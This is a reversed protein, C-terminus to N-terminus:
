GNDVVKLGLRTMDQTLRDEIRAQKQREAAVETKSPRGRKKGTYDGSQIYKASNAASPSSSKSHKILETLAESRLKVELEERMPELYEQFWRSSIIVKWHEWGGVLQTAVQYETPDAIELYLRKFSPYGQKDKDALTYLSQYSNLRQFQIPPDVFLTMTRWRNKEDKFNFDKPVSFAEKVEEPEDMHKLYEEFEEMTMDKKLCNAKHSIIWINSPIYGKSSEKRDISPAQDHSQRTGHILPIGLVPCIAPIDLDAETLNFELGKKLARHRAATILRAKPSHSPFPM